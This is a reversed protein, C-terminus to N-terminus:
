HNPPPGPGPTARGWAESILPFLFFFFFVPFHSLSFFRFLLFLIPYLFFGDSHFSLFICYYIPSHNSYKIFNTKFCCNSQCNQQAALAKHNQVTLFQSIMCWKIGRAWSRTLSRAFSHACHLAHVIRASCLLCIPTRLLSLSLAIWGCNSILLLSPRLVILLLVLINSTAMRPSTSLSSLPNTGAQKLFSRKCM